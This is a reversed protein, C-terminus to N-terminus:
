FSALVLGSSVLFISVNNFKLKIKTIKDRNWDWLAKFMYILDGSPFSLRVCTDIFTYLKSFLITALFFIGSKETGGLIM